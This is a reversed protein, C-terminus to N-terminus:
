ITKSAAENDLGIEEPDLGKRAATIAVVRAQEKETFKYFFLPISTALMSIAALFVSAFYIGDQVQVTAAMNEKFGVISLTLMTVFACAAMGIKSIFTQMSFCIGEAREGTKWELYDVTDAIMAYTLINSFGSPIGLLILGIFNFWLGFPTRWGAFFMAFMVVAGALHSYIYLDRKGFRKALYPTFVSALLGGPVTAITIITFVAANDLCYKAFYLGSTFYTLRAAGLVGSLVILLLPTNRTLLKLNQGLSLPPTPSYYRENTYKFGIFFLPVAMITVIAAIWIFSQRLDTAIAVKMTKQLAPAIEELGIGGTTKNQIYNVIAPVSLTVLGAGATCSLRAVTLLTARKNTDSTLATSLGWYPVDVITYLISWVVYTIAAYLFKTNYDGPITTFCIMTLIGIPIPTFLLYPRLKGWKTRTRDVISGMLPDNFADFLRVGLMLYAVGAPLLGVGDTYFFLLFSSILACILNQGFGAVSYAIAERPQMGKGPNTGFLKHLFNMM